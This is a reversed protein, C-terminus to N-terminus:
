LVPWLVKRIRLEDLGALADKIVSVIDAASIDGIMYLGIVDENVELDSNNIWRICVM